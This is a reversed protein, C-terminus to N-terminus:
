FTFFASAKKIEESWFDWNHNGERESFSHAIGKETLFASFEKNCPYLPDETGCSIYLSIPYKDMTEKYKDVLNYLSNNSKAFESETGFVNEINRIKEELLSIDIDKFLSTAFPDIAGSFSACKSFSDPNSLAIKLAGYGGMSLGATFRFARDRITHFTNDIAPILEKSIYSGYRLGHLADTYYGRHTTPMVTIFGYKNSLEEINTNRLWALSDDSHGHLLYLVPFKKGTLTPFVTRDDPIIVEVETSMNLYYSFYHMSLLAM